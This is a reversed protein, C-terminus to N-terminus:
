ECELETRWIQQNKKKKEKIEKMELKLEFRRTDNNRRNKNLKM